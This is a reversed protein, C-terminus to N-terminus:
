PQSIESLYHPTVNARCKGLVYPLHNHDVLVHNIRMRPPPDLLLAADVYDDFGARERHLEERYHAFWLDGAQEVHQQEAELVKVHKLVWDLARRTLARRLSFAIQNGTSWRHSSKMM